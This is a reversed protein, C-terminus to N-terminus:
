CFLIFCIIKTLIKFSFFVENTYHLTKKKENLCLKLSIVSIIFWMVPVTVLGIFFSRASDDGSQTDVILLLVAFLFALVDFVICSIFYAISLKKKM